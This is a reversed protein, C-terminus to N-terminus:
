RKLDFTIPVVQDQGKVGVGIAITVIPGGVKVSAHTVGTFAPDDNFLNRCARLLASADLDAVSQGVQIPLGFTPHRNLTGQVVSLRIKATQVINALGVALRCDGDPTIALDGSQTLLLDVGGVNLLQDFVDLGPIARLQEDAVSPEQQSPIYLMMQSNVTDPLFAHLVAGALTSFRSLDPDGDLTLVSVTSSLKDIKTVHRSTRSTNASSLWVLQGVFLNTSDAVEIQNGNGNTLLPSTSARSTSMPRVSDTSPPSRSGATPRVWTARRSSSWLSATRTRSRSSPDRCMSLSAQARRWAPSSTWARSPPTSPRGIGRAPEDGHRGPQPRVVGQLREADADKLQHARGPQLDHQLYQQRRRRRRRLRGPTPRRRRADARLRPAQAPARGSARVIQRVAVPPIQVQSPQVNKFLDYHEGPNKFISNAPHTGASSSSVTSQDYRGLGGIQNTIGALEALKDAAAVVKASQSRFASGSDNFAKAVGFSRVIADQCTNMVQVPLDAFALPVNLADKLFLTTQRLPEFLAHDLDGAVAALIDRANELIDRADLLAKLTRQLGNPRMRVPTFASSAKNDVSDLSIRRWARLSLQYTYEFPSQGTQNRNYVLPTVLYVSQQKWLALALRYDRGAKTQKFAAYNEFFREMLRMQYYGSTKAIASGSGDGGGSVADVQTFENDSVLNEIFNANGDTFNSAFAKASTAVRNAQEITGAFIAQGLNLEQRKDGTPRLPLVGTTGTFQIQRVPAGGHEEVYGGQTVSGTIAFPMSISIAEPAFPLTLTWKKATEDERTYKGDSGRKVLVFQYPFAQNWRAAEIEEHIWFGDKQEVSTNDQALKVSDLFSPNKKDSTAM